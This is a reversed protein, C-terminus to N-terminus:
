QDHQLNTAVSAPESPQCTATNSEKMSKVILELQIVNTGMLHGDQLIMCKTLHLSLTM